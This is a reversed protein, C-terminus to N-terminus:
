SRMLFNLLDIKTIIGCLQGHERVLAVGGRAFLPELAALPTEPTVEIFNHDLVEAVPDTREGGGAMMHHLLGNETVVGIAKGGEGLVPVQSVGHRHLLLVADAVTTGPSVTVLRQRERPLLEAVRRVQWTSELFGNDRMWQDDLFKTMYNRVSDPLIVVCRQGPGLETAVQLAAWVAAGSSGGALIGEEAILRRATLFSERDRTKVWRHVLSRDLM